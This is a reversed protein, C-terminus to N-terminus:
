IKMHEARVGEDTKGDGLELLTEMTKSDIDLALITDPWQFFSTVYIPAPKRCRPCQFLLFFFGKYKVQVRELM